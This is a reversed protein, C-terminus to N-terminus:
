VIAEEALQGADVAERYLRVGRLAAGLQRVIDACPDSQKNRVSCFGSLETHIKLPLVALQHRRNPGM